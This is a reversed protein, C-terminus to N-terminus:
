LWKISDLQSPAMRDMCFAEAYNIDNPVFNPKKEALTEASLELCVLNELPAVGDIQDRQELETAACLRATNKYLSFMTFFPVRTSSKPPLYSEDDIKERLIMARHHADLADRQSYQRGISLVHEPIAILSIKQKKQAAM